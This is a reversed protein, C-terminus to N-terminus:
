RPQLEIDIVKVGRGCLIKLDRSGCSFCKVYSSLLEPIFHIMEREEDNLTKVLEKFTYSKGCSECKVLAEEIITSFKANRLETGSLLEKVLEALINKDFMSLEGIAIKFSTIKFGKVLYVERLSDVIGSAVTFEHM